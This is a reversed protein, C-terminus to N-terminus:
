DLIELLEKQSSIGGDIGGLAFLSNRMSNTSDELADNRGENLLRIKELKMEITDKILYRHVVTHKTQGIRHIRNIAQQDLGNNMIPEVMFVHTAHVLTLGEAGQKLNLLLVVCNPSQFSCLSSSFSKCGEPRALEVNNEILASEIIDLMDNWQSFVVGKEGKDRIFLIDSIIRSIKTGYSGKIKRIVRSGDNVCKNTSILVENKATLIRCKMPCQVNIGSSIHLIQDFCPKQHFRHGCKLVCCEGDFHRLCVVCKDEEEGGNVSRRQNQLFRLTGLSRRLDGLCTGQKTKHEFYNSSLAIPPIIANRQEETYSTLDENLFALRQQSKCSSLEDIGNLLNLHTNFMKWAGVKEREEADLVDFFCKARHAIHSTQTSKLLATGTPSRISSFIATLVIITTSDPKLDKLIEAIQCHRCVDGKQNWDAKCLRCHSNERIELVGPNASCQLLHSMCRRHAGKGCKFRTSRVQVFEDANIASLQNHKIGLGENRIKRLRMSLGSKLGTLSNFDPFKMTDDADYISEVDQVIRDFIVNKQAESGYLSVIGLFDDFWGDDWCDDVEKHSKTLHTKDFLGKEKENRIRTLEGLKIMCANHLTQAQVKHLSEIAIIDTKMTMIRSKIENNSENVLGGSHFKMAAEYSTCANHLAHLSQLDDSNIQPEYLEIELGVFYGCPMMLSSSSPQASIKVVIRWLKSKNTRRINDIDVWDNDDFSVEACDVFETSTTAVQLVLSAPQHLKWNFENSNEEKIDDPLQYIPRIRLKVLKRSSAKYEIESWIKADFDQQIKWMLLCKGDQFSKNPFCFGTSGTLIAEANATVPIGNRQALLLSERYLDGSTILLSRDTEAVEIGLDKAEVKLKCIGAMGNTHLIALRQAEESKRRADDILRDLIQEMTMVNSISNGSENESRSPQRRLKKLKRGSPGIGNVGVQPHCCAARLRHLCESLNDLGAAKRKREGTAVPNKFNTALQMTRELQLSYFHREISSFKLVIREERMDPIGIQRKM